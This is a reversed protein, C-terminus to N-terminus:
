IAELDFLQRMKELRHEVRIKVCRPRMIKIGDMIAKTMPIIYTMVAQIVVPALGLSAKFSKNSGPYKNIFVISFFLCFEWCTVACPVM